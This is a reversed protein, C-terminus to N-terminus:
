LNIFNIFVISKTPRRIARPVDSFCYYGVWEAPVFAFKREVRFAKQERLAKAKSPPLHSSLPTM